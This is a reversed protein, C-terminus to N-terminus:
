IVFLIIILMDQDGLSPNVPKIFNVLWEEDMMLYLILAFMFQKGIWIHGM